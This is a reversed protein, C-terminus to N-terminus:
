RVPHDPDTTGGAPVTFLIGATYPAPRGAKMETIQQGYMKRADDVSRKGLVIENALNLALFNAGEKDCRASMEGSTREMVVSGDYQGLEDYSSWPARYDVWQQMVDTHPGPFNHPYETRYVITRKWPGTRGWVVMDASVSAPAGYKTTMFAIADRSAKPWASTMRQVQARNVRGGGRAQASAETAGAIIATGLAIAAVKVIRM